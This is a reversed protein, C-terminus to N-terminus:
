KRRRTGTNLTRRGRGVRGLMGYKIDGLGEDRARSWTVLGRYVRGLTGTGTKYVAMTTILYHDYSVYTKLINEIPIITGVLTPFFLQAGSSSAVAPAWPEQCRSKM